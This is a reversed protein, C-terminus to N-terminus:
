ADHSLVAWIEGFQISYKLIRIKCQRLEENLSQLTYEIHHGPDLRYELNLEKKYLTIWDRDFMPVRILIRPAIKKIENLFEVRNKIHELVNSLIVTDFKRGPLDKTVDGILYTINAAPYRKNAVKISEINKDIAVVNKVHRSIDFVLAGNGCGIDLISDGPRVNDIFFQHYNLLRHKPHLGAEASISLKSSLKYSFNHLKLALKVLIKSIKKNM